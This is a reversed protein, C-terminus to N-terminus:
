NTFYSAIDKEIYYNCNKSLWDFQGQPNVELFIYEGSESYILDISGTNIDYVKNFKKIKELLESPLQVPVCRNPKQEDYNRFDISTKENEQSFIAMPYYRNDFFFLRIEYEKKIYSQFLSVAFKNDLSDLMKQNVLKVGTSTITGLNTNINVPYRIDKVIININEKFFILLDKKVNTVLTNPINLGIYKAIELQTLKYNETENIYGGIYSIQNYLTLEISKMVSDAEKRVYISTNSDNINKGSILTLKGRRHWVKKVYHNNIVTTKKENSLQYCLSATQTKSNFRFIKSQKSDLWEVVNDTSADTEESIILIM